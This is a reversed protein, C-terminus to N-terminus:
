DLIDSSFHQFVLQKTLGATGAGVGANGGTHTSSGTSQGIRSSRPSHHADAEEAGGGHRESHHTADETRM